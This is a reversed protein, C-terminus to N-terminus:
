EAERLMAMLRAYFRLNHITALRFALTDGIRFLHHLYALSYRRCCLCDCGSEIPEDAKIYKKDGIHIHRYFDARDLLSAQAGGSFVFLRRHRADRTPIVCDFTDYGMRFAQVVNEPKGIGLAHKVCGPPVLEATLGVSDVLAGAEDIPWGGFGYGDFGIALLREACERRLESYGGGQVVAFLLPKPPQEQGRGADAARGRADLLTDFTSRCKKAWHVTNEVSERQVDYSAAPHTCHDLCLMVDSGIAFQKHICSEATLKRKRGALHYIFGGRTVSGAGRSESVLSFVQYGGSDSVIPGEWGMFRHLGGTKRLTSVGPHSALHLTNVMLAETGTRRVDESDLSRIVGRTADPLFAPLPLDGHPTVLANM